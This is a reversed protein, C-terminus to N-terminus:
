LGFILGFAAVVVWKLYNRIFNNFFWDWNPFFTDFEHYQRENQPKGSNQVPDALDAPDAAALAELRASRGSRAHESIGGM